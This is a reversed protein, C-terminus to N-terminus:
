FLVLLLTATALSSLVAAGVVYLLSNRGARDVLIRVTDYVIKAKQASEECRVACAELRKGIREAADAPYGKVANASDRVIESASRVGMQLDRLSKLIESNKAEWTELQQHVMDMKTKYIELDLLSVEPNVNMAVNMNRAQEIKSM